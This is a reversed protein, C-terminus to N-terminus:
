APEATPRPCHATPRARIAAAIERACQELMVMNRHEGAWTFHGDEDEAIKACAEREAALARQLEVVKGAAEDFHRQLTSRNQTMDALSQRTAALEAQAADCENRAKTLAAEYLTGDARGEAAARSFASSERLAHAADPFREVFWGAEASELAALMGDFFDAAASCWERLRAVEAELAARTPSGAPPMRLAERVRAETEERTWEPHTMGMQGIVWSIRQAEVEEPTMVHHRAKEILVLLEPDTRPETRTLRATM